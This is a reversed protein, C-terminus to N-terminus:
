LEERYHDDEDYHIEKLESSYLTAVVYAFAASIVLVVIFLAIINRGGVDSYIESFFDNKLQSNSLNTATTDRSNYIRHMFDLLDTSVGRRKM